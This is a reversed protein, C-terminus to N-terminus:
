PHGRFLFRRTWTSMATLPPYSLLMSPLMLCTHYDPGASVTYGRRGPPHAKGHQLVWPAGVTGDMWPGAKPNKKCCPLKQPPRDYSDTEMPGKRRHARQKMRRRSARKTLSSRSEGEQAVLRGGSCAKAYTCGHGDQDSRIQFLSHTASATGSLVEISTVKRRLCLHVFIHSM